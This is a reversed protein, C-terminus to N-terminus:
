DSFNDALLFRKDRSRAPVNRALTRLLREETWGSPKRKNLWWKGALYPNFKGRGQRASDLGMRKARNAFESWGGSKDDPFMVKLAEISVPDFLAALEQEFLEPNKTDAEQYDIHLGSRKRERGPKVSGPKRLGPRGIAAVKKKIPLVSLQVSPASSINGDLEQDRDDVYVKSNKEDSM